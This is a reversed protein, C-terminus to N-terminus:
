DRPSAEGAAALMAEALQAYAARWSAAIAATFRPGHAREIAWLLAEGVADYDAPAVGYAVHRRALDALVPRLAGIDHIQAVVAGLTSMMKLAQAEMDRRFMPRTEPAVEFLRQYFADAVRSPQRSLERYSARLTDIADDSLPM